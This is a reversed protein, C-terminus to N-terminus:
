RQWDSLLFCRLICPYKGPIHHPDVHLWTQTQTPLKLACLLIEDEMQLVQHINHPFYNRKTSTKKKPANTTYKPKEEVGWVLELSGCM